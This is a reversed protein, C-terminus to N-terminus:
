RSGPGFADARQCPDGKAKQNAVYNAVAKDEARM